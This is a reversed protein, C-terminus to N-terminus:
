APKAPPPCTRLVNDAAMQRILKDALTTGAHSRDAFLQSSAGIGITGKWVDRKQALDNLTFVYTEGREEGNVQFRNTHQVALLNSPQFAALAAKAKAPGDLEMPDLQYVLTAVGCSGLESQVEQKFTASLSGAFGSAFTDDTPMLVAVRKVERDYDSAAVHKGVEVNVCGAVLLVACLPALRPWVM